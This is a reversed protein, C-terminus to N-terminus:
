RHVSFVLVNLVTVALQRQPQRVTVHNEVASKM